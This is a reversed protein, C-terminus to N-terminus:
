GVYPQELLGHKRALDDPVADFSWRGLIEVCMAGIQEATMTAPVSWIQNSWTSLVWTGSSNMRLWFSNGELGRPTRHTACVLQPFGDDHPVLTTFVGRNELASQLALYEARM